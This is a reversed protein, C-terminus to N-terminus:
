ELPKRLISRIACGFETVPPCVSKTDVQEFGANSVMKDWSAQNLWMMHFLGREYQTTMGLTTNPASYEVPIETFVMGGPKLIRHMTAFWPCPDTLHEFVHSSLFLDVSADAVGVGTFFGNHMETTLSGDMRKASNLTDALKVQYNASPEYCVLKGGNSALQRLNYLMYGAACGMEMVTLGSKQALAPVALIQAAQQTPRWDTPGGINMQGTYARAYAATIKEPSMIPLSIKVGTSPLKYVATGCFEPHHPCEERGAATKDADTL